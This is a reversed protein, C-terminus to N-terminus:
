KIYVSGWFVLNFILFIIPVVILFYWDLKKLQQIEENRTNGSPMRSPGQKVVNPKDIHFKIRYLLFGYEFLAIFIIVQCGVM